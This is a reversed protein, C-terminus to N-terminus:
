CHLPSESRAVYEAAPRAHVSCYYLPGGRDAGTISISEESWPAVAQDPLCPPARELSCRAIFALRAVDDDSQFLKLIYVGSSAGDRHGCWAM